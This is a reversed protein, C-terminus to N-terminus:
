FIDECHQFGNSKSHSSKQKTPSGAAGLSRSKMAPSVQPTSGASVAASVLSVPVNVLSTLLGTLTYSSSPSHPTSMPLPRLQLARFASPPVASTDRSNPAPGSSRSSSSSPHRPPFNSALTALSSLLSQPPTHPHSPLSHALRLNSCEVLSHIPYHAIWNM